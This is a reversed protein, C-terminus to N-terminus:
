QPIRTKSDPVSFTHLLTTGNDDYISVTQGDESIIAKNWALKRTKSSEVAATQAAQLTATLTLDQQQTLASGGVYVTVVEVQPPIYNIDVRTTSSLPSRDFCAIGEQGDDTIIIGTITLTHSVNYPIIRTGNLCVVYRETAKGSGKSENGKAILFPTYNRLTLDVRRLTRLEKYIDIPHISMGVTDASLFVDRNLGDVHDILAM